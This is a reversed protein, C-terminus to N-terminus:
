HIPILRGDALQPVVPCTDLKFAFAIDQTAGQGFSMLRQVHSAHKLCYEFPDPQALQWLGMAAHVADNRSTYIGSNILRQCLAGAFLADEISFDNMWGSCLIVLDQPNDLLQQTLLSINAFSGVFTREADRARLICVTGNTTSFAIKQGSLDMNLYETPSNGCEVNDIKKGGREAARLYGQQRYTELAELTDLPVVETAGAQFAACIATTARLIDVAVAIHNQKITRYPYLAPSFCLEIQPSANM